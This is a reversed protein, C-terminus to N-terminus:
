QQQQQASEAVMVAAEMSEGGGGQRVGRVPAANLYDRGFLDQGEVLEIGMQQALFAHEFYASNHAGATLLVVSPDAVGIPAV